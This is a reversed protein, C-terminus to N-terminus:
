NRSAVGLQLHGWSHSALEWGNDKLVAGGQRGTGTLRMPPATTGFIPPLRPLWFAKMDLLFAHYKLEWKNHLFDPHEQIFDEAPSGPRLFRHCPATM